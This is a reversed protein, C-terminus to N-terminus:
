SSSAVALHSKRVLNKQNSSFWTTIWLSSHLSGNLLFLSSQQEGLGSIGSIDLLLAGRKSM